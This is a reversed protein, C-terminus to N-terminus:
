YQNEQHLQGWAGGSQVVKNAHGWGGSQVVKNANGWGGSQVVKNSRGWGGAQGSTLFNVNFEINHENSLELYDKTVNTDVYSSIDEEEIWKQHNNIKTSFYQNNDKALYYGDIRINTKRM